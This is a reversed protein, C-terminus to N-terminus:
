AAAESRWWGRLGDRYVAERPGRLSGRVQNCVTSTLRAWVGTRLAVPATAVYEVINSHHLTKLFNVERRAEDQEKRSMHNIKVEKIVFQQKPDDKSTVM